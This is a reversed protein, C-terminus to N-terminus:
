ISNDRNANDSKIEWKCKTKYKESTIHCWRHLSTTNDIYNSNIYKSLRTIISPLGTKFKIPKGIELLIQWM